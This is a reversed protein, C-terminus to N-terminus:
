FVQWTNEIVNEIVSQDCPAQKQHTTLRESKGKTLLENRIRAKETKDTIGYAKMVTEFLDTATKKVLPDTAESKIVAEHAMDHLSVVIDAPLTRRSLERALIHRIFSDPGGLHTPM